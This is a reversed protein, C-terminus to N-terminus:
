EKEKPWNLLRGVDGTQITQVFRDVATVPAGVTFGVGKLADTFAKELDGAKFDAPIKIFYDLMPLLKVGGGRWKGQLASSIDSGALPISDVFQAWLGNFLIGSAPLSM